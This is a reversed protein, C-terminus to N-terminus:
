NDVIAAQDDETLETDTEMEKKRKYALGMETADAKLNVIWVPEGVSRIFQELQEKTFTWGDIIFQCDSIFENQFYKIIEKFPLEELPGDDGGLKEKLQNTLNEWDVLKM